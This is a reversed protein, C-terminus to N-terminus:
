SKIPEPEVFLRGTGKGTWGVLDLLRRIIAPGADPGFRGILWRSSGNSSWFTVKRQNRRFDLIEYLAEDGAESKAGKGIDDILLAGCNRANELIARAQRRVDQNDDHRDAAAQRYRSATVAYVKRGALAARHLLLYAVRTKGGGTAGAFGAGQQGDLALAPLLYPALLDKKITSQMNPPTIELWASLCECKRMEARQKEMAAAACPKCDFRRQGFVSFEECPQGCQPCATQGIITLGFRATLDPAIESMHSVDQPYM